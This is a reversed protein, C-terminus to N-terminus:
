SEALLGGALPASIWILLINRHALMALPAYLALISSGMLTLVLIQLVIRVVLLSALVSIRSEPRLSKHAALLVRAQWRSIASLLEMQLLALLEMVFDSLLSSILVIVVHM